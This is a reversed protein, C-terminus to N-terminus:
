GGEDSDAYDTPCTERLIAPDFASDSHVLRKYDLRPAGFNILLARHLGTAKLYHIVQADEVGTLRSLAKIEVLVEEFCVFDARYCTQLPVGKYSVVFQAEREFPIERQKFEVTLAEQYVAELFGRGLQRHVEMAAGLIAYTQPDRSEGPQAPSAKRSGNSGGTQTM